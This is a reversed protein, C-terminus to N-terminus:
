IHILSLGKEKDSEDIDSWNILSTKLVNFVARHEFSQEIQKFYIKAKSTNGRKFESLGLIM